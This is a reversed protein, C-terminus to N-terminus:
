SPDIKIDNSTVDCSAKDAPCKKYLNYSVSCNKCFGMCDCIDHSKFEDVNDSRLPVFGLRHCIFEDNLSSTNERVQVMEIAM